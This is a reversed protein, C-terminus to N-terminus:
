DILSLFINAKEINWIPCAHGRCDHKHIVIYHQFIKQARKIGVDNIQDIQKMLKKKLIESEMKKNKNKKKKCVSEFKAYLVQFSFRM